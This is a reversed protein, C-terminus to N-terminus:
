PTNAMIHAVGDAPSDTLFVVDLDDASITGAAIMTDQVFPFLHRWYELGMCIIPFDAIKETQILTATEFIEDMTGFGGPMLVFACSYKVLMVKRIFFYCLEISHDVFRNEAQEKPLVINCGISRGGAERAGRNAAEMIGPGGGTMVTFGARALEAGMKRALKYYPHDEEFRASGFVTVVNREKRFAWFGKLAELGIKIASKLDAFRGEAGEFLSIDRHAKRTWNKLNPRPLMNKTNM